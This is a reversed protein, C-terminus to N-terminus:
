IFALKVDITSVSYDPKIQHSGLIIEQIEHTTYNELLYKVDVPSFGDRKNVYDWLSKISSLWQKYRQKSGTGELHRFEVTGQKGVPLLNFASYKSWIQILHDLSEKYKTPLTTFNLPVCHINHKRGPVMDFYFPELLAYLLVFGKLQNETWPLVNVHVHTSTRPSYAAGGVLCLKNHIIDFWELSEKFTLPATVIEVGNNRLSGDRMYGVKGFWLAEGDPLTPVSLGEGEPSRLQKVDEIEYETGCIFEDAEALSDEFDSCLEYIKM